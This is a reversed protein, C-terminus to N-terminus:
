FTVQAAIFFDNNAHDTVASIGFELKFATAVAHLANRFGFALPSNMRRGAGNGHQRFEIFDSLYFNIRCVEANVDVSSGSGATLVNLFCVRGHTNGMDRGARDYFALIFSALM